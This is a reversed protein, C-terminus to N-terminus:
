RFSSLAQAYLKWNGGVGKLELLWSTYNRRKDNEAKQIVKETYFVSLGEAELRRRKPTLAEPPSNNTRIKSKSKGFHKM